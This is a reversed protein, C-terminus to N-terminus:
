SERDERVKPAGGREIERARHQVEKRGAGCIVREAEEPAHERGAGGVGPEGERQRLVPRREGEGGTASGPVSASIPGPSAASPTRPRRRRRCPYRRRRDPATGAGATRERWWGMFVRRTASRRSVSRPASRVLVVSDHRGLAAGGIPDRGVMLMPIVDDTLRAADNGDGYGCAIGFVRQRMLEM